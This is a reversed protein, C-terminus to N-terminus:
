FSNSSTDTEEPEEHEESCICEGIGRMFDEYIENSDQEAQNLLTQTQDASRVGAQVLVALLSVITIAILADSLVFGSASSM